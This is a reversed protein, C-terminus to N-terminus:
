NWRRSSGRLDRLGVQVQSGGVVLALLRQDVGLAEGRRLQLFVFRLNEVRLFLDDLDLAPQEGLQARRNGAFGPADALGRQRQGLDVHQCRKACM